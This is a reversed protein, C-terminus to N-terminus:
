NSCAFIIRTNDKIINRIDCEVDKEKGKKDTFIVDCRIHHCLLLYFTMHSAKRSYGTQMNLSQLLSTAFSTSLKELDKTKIKREMMEM